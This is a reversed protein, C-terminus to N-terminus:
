FLDLLFAGKNHALIQAAMSMPLLVELEQFVSEV